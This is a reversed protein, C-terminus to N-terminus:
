AAMSVAATDNVGVLSPRLPTYDLLLVTRIGPKDIETATVPAVYHAVKLDDVIYADLPRELMFKSRVGEQPVQEIPSDHYRPHTIVNEGGSAGVRDLLVAVTYPEGDRHVLNPSAKAEQGPGAQLKIIHVGVQMSEMLTDPDFPIHSRFFDILTLLARNRYHAGALAAFVRRVGAAESNLTAPQTYELGFEGSHKYHRPPVPVDEGMWPLYIFRGYRRARGANLDTHDAPLAIAAKRLKNFAEDFVANSTFQEAPIHVFGERKLKGRIDAASNLVARKM